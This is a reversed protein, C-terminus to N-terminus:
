ETVVQANVYTEIADAIQPFTWKLDDNLIWLARRKNKSSPFAYICYDFGFIDEFNTTPYKGQTDIEPFLLGAVGLCCHGGNEHMRERCQQYQGSRLAAIWQRNNELQQKTM